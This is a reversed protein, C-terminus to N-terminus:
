QVQMYVQSSFFLQKDDTCVGHGGSAERYRESCDRADSFPFSVGVMTGVIYGNCVTAQGHQSHKGAEKLDEEKCNITVDAGMQNALELRKAVVDAALSLSLPLSLFQFAARQM